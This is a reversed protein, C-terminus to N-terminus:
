SGRVEVDHETTRPELDSDLALEGLVGGRVFGDCPIVDVQGLPDALWEVVLPPAQHLVGDVSDPLRPSEADFLQDFVDESQPALVGAFGDMQDVHEPFWGVGRFM